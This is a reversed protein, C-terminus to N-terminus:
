SSVGCQRRRLNGAVPRQGGYPWEDTIAAILTAGRVGTDYPNEWLYRLRDSTPGDRVLRVLLEALRGGIAKEYAQASALICFWRSGTTTRAWNAAESLAEELGSGSYCADIVLLVGGAGSGLAWQALAKPPVTELESATPGTNGLILRLAGGNDVLGHGAWYFVVTDEPGLESPVESLGALVAGPTAPDEFPYVRYGREALAEALRKLDATTAKLPQPQYFSNGYAAVAVGAFVHAVGDVGMLGGELLRGDACTIATVIHDSEATSISGHVAATTQEM